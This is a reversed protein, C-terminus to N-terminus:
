INEVNSVAKRTEAAAKDYEFEAALRKVEAFYIRLPVSKWVYGSLAEAAAMIGEDDFNECASNIKEVLRDFEELRIEPLTNDSIIEPEEATLCNNKELYTRIAEVLESYRRALKEHKQEIEDYNGAKGAVELQKARNSLKEAGISLSSSKLAHVEIVYNEWDREDYCQNLSQQYEAARGIFTRLNEMYVDRDGGSYLLGTEMNVYECLEETGIGTRRKSQKRLSVVGSVISEKPLWSKLIRDLTTLEIPKAVFDNFGERLFMEKVGNVANATLAVIPLKQFYDGEMARILKTAEVGDMEPMMHDMFVLDYKRSKLAELAAAGSMVTDIRMNYPKMLGEAVKLNTINDDVILVRATPATFRIVTSSSQYFSAVISENNLVSAVSMSYFPKYITKVNNPLTMANVRDQIVLVEKKESLENFYEKAAIYEERAIICHTYDGTGIGRQLDYISQFVTLSVDFKGVLENIMKQYQIEIEPHTYKRTDLYLAVSIKEADKIQIFPEPDSVKLPIVFKFESGKGYTSSVNIFGGMKAVLQKSIALGLGTGEVSRNKKTDVQQFSTFLKELNEESIGIGTDKVAVNLNIGYEHVSHSIKLVVCGEETFKIANTMLNVIIQKIRVEDGILGKPLLPDIRAIIEVKKEGKRTVSMSMVDNITSGINFSEEILEAKGSEIKSFDLIDNIIALLSRGSNQINYCHDKVEDNIDERLILECMGVIANMPTRIEHSMNALFDSKSQEARKAEEATNKLEKEARVLRFVYITLFFEEIGLAVIKLGFSVVSQWSDFVIVKFCGVHVTLLIMTLVILFGLMKVNMYYSCLISLACIVIIVSDFDRSKYCYLSINLMSILVFFYGQIKESVRSSFTLYTILVEVSLSYVSVWHGWHSFLTMSLILTIFIVAIAWTVYCYEKKTYTDPKSM